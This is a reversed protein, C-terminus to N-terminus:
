LGRISGKHASYDVNVRMIPIKTGKLAIIQGM